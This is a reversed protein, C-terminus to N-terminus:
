TSAVQVSYPPTPIAGASVVVLDVKRDAYLAPMEFKVMTAAASTSVVPESTGDETTIWVRTQSAASAAPTNPPVLNVGKITAVKGPRPKSPDVDSIGPASKQISKNGVYTAAAASTLALLVTPINPLTYKGDAIAIGHNFNHSVFVGTAYAFAVVNFVFYQTDVLDLSGDDKSLIDGPGAKKAAPTSTDANDISQKELTGNNVKTAVQYKAIIAAAFPGGLLILYDDWNADAFVHLRSHMFIEVGSLYAAAYGLGVTWLFVQAKSTSMRGDLGFLVTTWGYPWDKLNRGDPDSPRALELALFVLLLAVSGFIVARGSRDADKGQLIRVVGYIVGALPVAPFVFRLILV